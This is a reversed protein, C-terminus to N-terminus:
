KKPVMWTGYSVYPFTQVMPGKDDYIAIACNGFFHRAQLQSIILPNSIQFRKICMCENLLSIYRVINDCQSVPM